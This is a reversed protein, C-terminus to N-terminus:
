QGVKLFERDATELDVTYGPYGGSLYSLVRHVEQGRRQAFEVNASAEPPFPDGFIKNLISTVSIFDDSRENDWHARYRRIGDECDLVTLPVDSFTTPVWPSKGEDVSM